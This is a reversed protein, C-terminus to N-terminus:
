AVRYRGPETEVVGGHRLLRNIHMTMSRREVNDAWVLQVGPRYIFRHAVIEDISRPEALFELLRAERVGIM